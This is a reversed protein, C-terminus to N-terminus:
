LVGGNNWETGSPLLRLDLKLASSEDCSLATPVRGAHQEDFIWKGLETASLIGDEAPAEIVVASHANSCRRKRATDSKQGSCMPFLM